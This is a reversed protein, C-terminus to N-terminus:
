RLEMYFASGEEMGLSQYLLKGAEKRTTLKVFDCDIARATDFLIRMIQSALGHRRYEPLVFVNEVLAWNRQFFPDPIIIYQAVGVLRRTVNERAGIFRSNWLIYDFNYQKGTWEKLLAGVEKVDNVAGITFESM